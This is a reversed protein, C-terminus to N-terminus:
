LSLQISPRRLSSATMGTMCPNISTVEQQVGFVGFDKSVRSERRSLRGAFNVRVGSIHGPSMVLSSGTSVLPHSGFKPNRPRFAPIQAVSISFIVISPFSSINHSLIYNCLTSLGPVIRAKDAPSSYRNFYITTQLYICVQIPIFSIATSMFSVGSYEIKQNEFIEMPLLLPDGYTFYYKSGEGAANPKM